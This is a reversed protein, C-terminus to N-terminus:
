LNWAYPFYPKQCWTINPSLYLYRASEEKFFKMPQKDILAFLEGGSCFDTILCVHTSTQPSQVFFM